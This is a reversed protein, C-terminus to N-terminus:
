KTDSDDKTSSDDVEQEKRIKSFLEKFSKDQNVSNSLNSLNVSEEDIKDILTIEDKGVGIAYLNSGIRVISIFKNGGVSISEIVKINAKSNLNGQYKAVFRTTIYALFLIVVFILILSLINLASEFGGNKGTLFAGM